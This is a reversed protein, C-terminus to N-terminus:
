VVTPSTSGSGGLGLASRQQELRDTGGIKRVMNDVDIEVAVDGDHDYKYYHLTMSCKLMAKDGPKWTGWDVERVKGRVTVTVPSVTGDESELAGRFTCPVLEGTALGWRKMLEPDLNSTSFDCELKEMGMDIDVPADMGGERHEETKVVLKPLNLEGIQGAYGTGDVFLNCNKLVNVIM